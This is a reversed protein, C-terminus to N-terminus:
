QVTLTIVTQQSMSGSTATVTIQYTGPTTGAAIATSCATTSHRVCGTMGGAIVGFLVMMGLMM